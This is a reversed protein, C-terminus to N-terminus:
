NLFLFVMRQVTNEWSDIISFIIKSLVIFGLILVSRKLPVKLLLNANLLKPIKFQYNIKSSYIYM